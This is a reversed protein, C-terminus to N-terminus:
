RGCDYCAFPIELAIEGREEAMRDLRRELEGLVGIADAPHPIAKWADLFGLRIFGHRFLARGSAFRWTFSSELVRGLTLGATRLRAEWEARTPRKGGIHAALAPLRDTAGRDRLVEAFADYFSRMTGPLNATFVLQAGPKSVRVCEALAQEPDAVNNLGNNSVILDFHGDPFPMREAVGEVLEANAIRYFRAKLRAREAASRWPDLGVLSAEPGLRQALELLPFGSGPGIDLVRLGPRLRVTDLLLLGFPASWLPLEDFAAVLEPDELEFREALIEELSLM